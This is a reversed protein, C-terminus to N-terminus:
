QGARRLVFTPIRVAFVLEESDEGIVRMLARTTMGDPLNVERAFFRVGKHEHTDLLGDLCFNGNCVPCGYALGFKSM